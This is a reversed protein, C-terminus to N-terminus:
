SVERANRFRIEIYGIYEHYVIETIEAELHPKNEKPYGTVFWAKKPQRKLISRWYESDERYESTKRGMKTEDYLNVVQGNSKKWTRKLHFIV